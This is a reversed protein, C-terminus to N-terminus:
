MSMILLLPVGFRPWLIRVISSLSQCANIMDRRTLDHHFLSVGIVQITASVAAAAPRFPVFCYADVLQIIRWCLSRSVHQLKKFGGEGGGHQGSSKRERRERSVKFFDVKDYGTTSTTAPIHRCAGCAIRKHFRFQDPISRVLVERTATATFRDCVQNFGGITLLIRQHNVRGRDDNTRQRTNERM